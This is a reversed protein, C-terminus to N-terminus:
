IFEAAMVLGAGRRVHTNGHAPKPVRKKGAVFTIGFSISGSTSLGMRWYPM